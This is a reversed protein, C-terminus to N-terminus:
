LRNGPIEKLLKNYTKESIKGDILLKRIKNRESQATNRSKGSSQKQKNYRLPVAVRKKSSLYIMLGLFAVSVSIIVAIILTYDSKSGNVSSSQFNNTNINSNGIISPNNDPKIYSISIGIPNGAKLDNFYLYSHNTGDQNTSKQPAPLVLFDSSRAPQSIDVTVKNLDSNFVPSLKFSKTEGPVFPSSYYELMFPMEEGPKLTGSLKWTVTNNDRNLRYPLCVMGRETECIMNIKFNPHDLPIEMVVDESFDNTTDNVFTGYYGVLLAPTDKPWQGPFDHEPMIQISLDKITITNTADSFSIQAAFLFTIFIFFIVKYKM